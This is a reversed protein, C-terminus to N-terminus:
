GVVTGRSRRISLDTSSLVPRLAATTQGTAQVNM